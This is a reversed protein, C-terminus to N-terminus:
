PRGCPWGTSEACHPRTRRRAISSSAGPAPAILQEDTLQDFTKEALSRYRRYEAEISEMFTRM